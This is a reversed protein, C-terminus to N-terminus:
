NPFASQIYSIICNKNETLWKCIDLTISYLDSDTLNTPNHKIPVELQM